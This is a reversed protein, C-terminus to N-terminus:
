GYKIRMPTFGMTHTYYVYNVGVTYIDKGPKHISLNHIIAISNQKRHYSLLKIYSRQVCSLLHFGCFYMKDYKLEILDKTWTNSYINGDFLDIYHTIPNYSLHYVDCSHNNKIQTLQIQLFKSFADCEQQWFSYKSIDEELCKEWADVVIVCSRM